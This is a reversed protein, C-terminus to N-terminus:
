ACQSRHYTKHCGSTNMRSHASFNMTHQQYFTSLQCIHEVFGEIEELMKPTIFETIEGAKYRKFQKLCVANLHIVKQLSTQIWRRYISKQSLVELADKTFLGIIKYLSSPLFCSNQIWVTGSFFDCLAIALTNDTFLQDYMEKRKYYQKSDINVEELHMSNGWLIFLNNFLVVSLKIRIFIMGDIKKQSKKKFLIGANGWSVREQRRCHVM